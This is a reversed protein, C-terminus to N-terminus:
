PTPASLRALPASSNMTLGMSSRSNRRSSRRATSENRSPWGAGPELGWEYGKGAVMMLAGRLSGPHMALARRRARLAGAALGCLFFRVEVLFGRVEVTAVERFSLCAGEEAAGCIAAGISSAAGEREGLMSTVM